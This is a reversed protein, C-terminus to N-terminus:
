GSIQNGGTRASCVGRLAGCTLEEDSLASFDAQPSEHVTETQSLMKALLEFCERVERLAVISGRHDGDSETLALLEWAKRQVRCMEELLNEGLPEEHKESPKVISRSLHTRHRFLSAPSLSVRKAINRFPEGSVIALDIENREPSSCSLCRRPM